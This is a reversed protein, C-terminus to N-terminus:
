NGAELNPYNLGFRYHYYLKLLLGNVVLLLAFVPIWLAVVLGLTLFSWKVPGFLYLRGKKLILLYFPLVPLFALLFPVSPVFAAVVGASVILWVGVHLAPKEGWAVAPSRKGTERDGASDAVSVLTYVGAWALAYPVAQILLDQSFPVLALAGSMFCAGGGIVHVLLAMVPQDKWRAPPFSYAVGILGCILFLTLISKGLFVGTALTAAGLLHGWLIAESPKVLGMPIILLKNNMRDTTADAVQNYIFVAGSGMSVALLTLWFTQNFFHTFSPVPTQSALMSGYGAALTAWIPFFQSPRMLAVLDAAFWSRSREASVSVNPTNM